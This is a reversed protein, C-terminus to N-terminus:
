YEYIYNKDYKWKLTIFDFSFLIINPFKKLIEKGKIRAIQTICDNFYFCEFCNKFRLSKKKILICIENPIHTQKV